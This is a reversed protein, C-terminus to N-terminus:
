FNIIVSSTIPIYYKAENSNKISVGDFVKGLGWVGWTIGRGIDRNRTARDSGANLGNFSNNPDNFGLGNHNVKILPSATGILHMSLMSGFNLIESAIKFNRARRIKSPDEKYIFNTWTMVQMDKYATKIVCSTVGQNGPKNGLLDIQQSKYFNFEKLPLMPMDKGSSELFSLKLSDGVYAYSQCPKPDAVFISSMGAYSRPVIFASYLKGTGENSTSDIIMIIAKRSKLGANEKKLEAIKIDRKWLLDQLSDCKKNLQNYRGIWLDIVDSYLNTKGEWYKAKSTLSDIKNDSAIKLADYKGCSRLLLILMLLFVVIEGVLRLKSKKENPAVRSGLISETTM